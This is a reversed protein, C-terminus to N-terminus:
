SAAKSAKLRASLSDIVLQQLTVGDDIAKKKLASHLQKDIAFSIQTREGKAASVALKQVDPRVKDLDKTKLAM